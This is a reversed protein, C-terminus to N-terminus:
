SFLKEVNSFKMKVFYKPNLSKKKLELLAAEIHTSGMPIFFGAKQELQRIQVLGFYRAIISAAAVELYKSEANKERINGISCGPYLDVIHIANKSLKSYCKKHLKDMIETVNMKINLKNYEEPFLSEVHYNKPYKEILTKALEVIKPNTIKKSDKVGLAKLEDRIEKDAKFGAVVLGGFTDGKLTEDTGVALGYKKLDKKEKKIIELYELLKRAEEINEEKGQVLLKGTSYLVISAPGKFRATEYKTKPVIEEYGYKKLKKLKKEDINEYSAM